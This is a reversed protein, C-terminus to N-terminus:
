YSELSGTGDGSHVEVDCDTPVVGPIHNWILAVLRWPDENCCMCPGLVFHM